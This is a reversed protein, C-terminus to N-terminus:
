EIPSGSGWLEEPESVGPRVAQRAVERTFGRRLLAVYARQAQERNELAKPYRHQVLRRAAELEGGEPGEENIVRRIEDLEASVGKQRLSAQIYEPGKGKLFQHRTMVRLYRRDDLRGEARLRGVVSEAVAEDFGKRKLYLVLEYASYERARLRTLALAYPDAIM